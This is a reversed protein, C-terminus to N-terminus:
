GATDPRDLPVLALELFLYVNQVPNELLFGAHLSTTMSHLM